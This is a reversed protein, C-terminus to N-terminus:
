PCALSGTAPGPTGRPCAPRVRCVRAHVCRTCLCTRAAPDARAPLRLALARPGPLRAAPAAPTLPFLPRPPAPAVPDPRSQSRAASPPRTPRHNAAAESPGKRGFGSGWVTARSRGCGAMQAPPPACAPTPNRALM